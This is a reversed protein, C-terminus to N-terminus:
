VEADWVPFLRAFDNAQREFKAVTIHGQPRTAWWRMDGVVTLHHGGEHYAADITEDDSIGNRFIVEGDCLVANCREPLYDFDYALGIAALFQRWEERRYPGIEARLRAVVDEIVWGM